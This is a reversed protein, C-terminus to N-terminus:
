SFDFDVIVVKMRDVAGDCHGPSEELRFSRDAWVCIVVEFGANESVVSVWRRGDM